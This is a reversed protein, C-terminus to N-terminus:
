QDGTWVSSHLIFEDTRIYKSNFKNIGIFIESSYIWIEQLTPLAHHRSRACLAYILNIPEHQNAKGGTVSSNKLTLYTAPDATGWEAIALM